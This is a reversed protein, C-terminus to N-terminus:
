RRARKSQTRERLHALEDRFDDASQDVRDDRGVGQGYDTESLASDAPKSAAAPAPSVKGVSLAAELEKVRTRAIELESELEARLHRYRELPDNLM